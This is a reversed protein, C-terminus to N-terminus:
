AGSGRLRFVGVLEALRAAQLKLSEAAAASEEVLAANQQTVQDLEQLAEGVQSIGTSQESGAASIENILGTVRRVQVATDGVSEGAQGVLQSGQQVREVSATILTKIEKAASASRQALNRVEGAVVAFGRGQEGARAAEVAANLALINTQFAIGDIVGIIDAIKQSSASIEQMTSVVQGVVQGGRAAAESAASALQSAQRATEANQHVTATIEEMSAASEELNAAQNETRSSLDANGAAIQASGTAISDSSLRVESVVRVLSNNMAGLARLLDALEDKGHAEIQMTLDGDAVAEALRVARAIPQTISRTIWVAALVSMLVAVALLGLTLARVWQYQTAASQNVEAAVRLQLDILETVKGGIPDIALYLPGDFQALQDRVTGSMGRLGAELQAVAENAPRFLTEAEGVLRKEDATLSTSVYDRWSTDIDRRAAQVLKLADEAKLLGANAKNVADIINIAYADAVRKLTQLPVVRDNYVTELGENTKSLAFLSGVGLVLLLVIGMLFGATLRTAVRVNSMMNM